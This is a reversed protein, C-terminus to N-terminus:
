IGICLTGLVNLNTISSSAATLTGSVNLNTTTSNTTTSNTTVSSSATILRAELTSTANIDGATVTQFTGSSGSNPDIYCNSDTPGCGAGGTGPTSALGPDQINQSPTFPASPNAAFAFPAFSFVLVAIFPLLFIRRRLKHM